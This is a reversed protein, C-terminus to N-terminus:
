CSNYHQVKPLTLIFLTRLLNSNCSFYYLFSKLFLNYNKEFTYFILHYNKRKITIIPLKEKKIERLILSSIIKMSTEMNFLIIFKFFRCNKINFCTFCHNKKKENTYISLMIATSTHKIWILTINAGHKLRLDTIKKKPLHLVCSRNSSCFREDGMSTFLATVRPVSTELPELDMEKPM